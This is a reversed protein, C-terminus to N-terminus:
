LVTNTSIGNFSVIEYEPVGNKQAITWITDGAQVTYNKSTIYDKSTDVPITNQFYISDASNDAIDQKIYLVSNHIYGSGKPTTVSYWIGNKGKISISTWAQLYGVAPYNLGEGSFITASKSTYAEFSATYPPTNKIVLNQGINITDNQLGNLKKIDDVTTGFFRSVLWLTDGSLVKYVLKGDVPVYIMMMNKSSNNYVEAGFKNSIFEVPVCLRFGVIKMPAPANLYKGNFMVNSNDLRLVMESGGSKIIGTMTNMDYSFTGGIASALEKAPMLLTDNYYTCSGSVALKQNNVMVGTESAAFVTKVSALLMFVSILVTLLCAKKIWPMKFM